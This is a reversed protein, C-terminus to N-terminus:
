PILEGLPSYRLTDALAGTRVIITADAAECQKIKGNPERITKTTPLGRADFCLITRDSVFDARTLASRRIETLGSASTDAQLSITNPLQGQAPLFELVAPRGSQMALSRATAHMSQVENAAARLTSRHMTRVTPPGVIAMAAVVLAIAIILEHLTFGGTGTRTEYSM